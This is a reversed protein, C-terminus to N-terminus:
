AQGAGLEGEIDVYCVVRGLEEHPREQMLGAPNRCALSSGVVAPAAGGRLRGWERREPM